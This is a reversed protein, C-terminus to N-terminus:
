ITIQCVEKSFNKWVNGSCKANKKGVSKELIRIVHLTTNNIFRSTTVSSEELDGFQNLFDKTHITSMNRPSQSLVIKSDTSDIQKLYLM